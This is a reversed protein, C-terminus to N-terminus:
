NASKSVKQSREPLNSIVPFVLRGYWNATTVVSYENAERM